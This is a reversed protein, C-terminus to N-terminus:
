FRSWVPALGAPLPPLDGLDLHGENPGHFDSGCSALLGFARAHSAFTAVQAADHSPSLVELADGGRDRFEGLLRRMGGEAAVRYRGPHALVAVGGAAHIWGIAQALEAWAHRVYGPNGATLYRKFVEHTSKAYGAEVLFRAFHARSVLRESTVHALAGEWAGPIGAAELSVAIRRARADRGSRIVELGTALEAHDADIGLGIVHLTIDEWSVSLEAGPILRLAGGLERAAEAAAALGATDDHDTLALVDVGRSAARRVVDAPALLGDSATSHCHLDYRPM